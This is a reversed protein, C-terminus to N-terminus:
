AQTIEPIRTQAAVSVPVDVMFTTGQIGPRTDVLVEGKMLSIRSLMNKWGNGQSQKFNEPDFGDGDDEITLNIQDDHRVIQVAIKHANGHKMINNTWEQCVRYLNIELVEELRGEELGHSIYETAIKGGSNIRFLYETM